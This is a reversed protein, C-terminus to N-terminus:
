MNHVIYAFLIILIQQSGPFSGMRGEGLDLIRFCFKNIMKNNEVLSLFMARFTELITFHVYFISLCHIGLWWQRILVFYKVNRFLLYLILQLPSRSHIYRCMWMKNSHFSKFSDESLWILTFSKERKKKTGKCQLFFSRFLPCFATIGIYISTRVNVVIKSQTSTSLTSKFICWYSQGSKSWICRFILSFFPLM